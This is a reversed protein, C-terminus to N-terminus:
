YRWCAPLLQKRESDRITKCFSSWTWYLVPSFYLITYCFTKVVLM